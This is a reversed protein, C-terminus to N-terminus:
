IAADTLREHAESYLAHDVYDRPLELDITAFDPKTVKDLWVLKGVVRGRPLGIVAAIIRFHQTPRKSRDVVFPELPLLGLTSLAAPQESDADCRSHFGAAGVQTVTHQHATRGLQEATLAFGRADSQFGVAARRNKSAPEVRPLPVGGRGRLDAGVPGADSHPCVSVDCAEGGGALREDS